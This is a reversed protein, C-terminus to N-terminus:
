QGRAGLHAMGLGNALSTPSFVLNGKADADALARLVALGFETDARGFDAAAPAHTDALALVTGRRTETRMHDTHGSRHDSAGCGALTAALATALALLAGATRRPTHM